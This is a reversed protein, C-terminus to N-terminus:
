NNAKIKVTLGLPAAERTFVECAFMEIENCPRPVLFPDPLAGEHKAQERLLAGYTAIVAGIAATLSNTPDTDTLAALMEEHTPKPRM